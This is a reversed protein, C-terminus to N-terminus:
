PTKGKKFLKALTSITFISLCYVVVGIVSMTKSGSKIVCILAVTIMTGSITTAIIVFKKKSNKM